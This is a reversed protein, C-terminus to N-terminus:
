YYTAVLQDYSRVRNQRLVEVETPMMLEGRRRLAEEMTLPTPAKGNFKRWMIAAETSAKTKSSLGFCLYFFSKFRKDAVGQCHLVVRMCERGSRAKHSAVEMGIVRGISSGKALPMIEDYAIAVSSSLDDLDLDQPAQYGCVPCIRANNPIECLCNICTKTKAKGSEEPGKRKRKEEQDLIYPRNIPGLRELNRAFDLILCDSKGAAPRTARGLMQCHLGTSMTPRLMGILDVQPVDFGTTLQDASILCRVRGARFDAIAKANDTAHRGSHVALAEIGRRQLMAEVKNANVIGTVFVLWSRREKGEKVMIDCAQELLAANGVAAAAEKTIFDGAQIHVGSLDVSVPTDLPVLPALYGEAILRTFSSTLDYAVDTFIANEQETLFGGKTRYPTASLGCVRLHPCLATLKELVVRYQSTSKESLLHCEDIVVLCRAGFAAPDKRLMSYATQVTAMVIRRDPERAGLSASCTGVPAEPWVETLKRVNQKVIEGVHTLMLVKNQPWSCAWQIIKAIVVSKGTGTPMVILPNEGFPHETVFSKFADVAERQYWREILAM